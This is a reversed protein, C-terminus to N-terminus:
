RSFGGFRSNIAVVKRNETNGRKMPKKGVEIAAAVADRLDDHAPRQLLIQEEYENMFGGKFHWLTNNEYRPMLTAECREDKNGMARKGEVVMTKGSERTRDKLYEVILNAGANSEMRLKRFKWKDYLREACSYMREYKTTKFQELDLIFINGKADLGIVAFATYDSRTGDTYAVDAGAYVFLQEDKYYWTGGEERLFKRDYYQFKDDTIGDSDPNNPNNYYQASYQAREGAAYYKARIIALERADFGYWRKNKTSKARPWLFVGDEEVKKEMVEFLKRSGIIEGDDSFEEVDTELMQAYIDRGHYRTGVVKTMAGTNAVSSFQSYSSQVKKRGDETYANEPVVIDDFVIVDAHLGTTNSGISRAAVTRDRVGLEKRLPHDVKINRFNWEERKAEEPHIMDPWFARHTDSELIGKIAYLQQTALDETASVYIMTTDPHKTIWWACWTAIIHSKLHGRPLLILQDTSAGRRTLWRFVQRHIDGYMYNPNVLKAFLFIDEEAAKRAEEIRSM